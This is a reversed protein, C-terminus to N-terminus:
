PKLKSGHQALYALVQQGEAASIRDELRRIREGAFVATEEGQMRLPPAGTATYTALWRFWVTGDRDIPGEVMEVVRSDFRRDFGTVAQQFAAKVAERGESRNGFPPEAVTEYVADETFFPDLQSWDDTDYAVEFAAAYSLFRQTIDM